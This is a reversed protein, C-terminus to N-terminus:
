SNYTDAIIPINLENLRKFKEIIRKNSGGTYQRHMNDNCIKLHCWSYSLPDGKFFVTTRIGTGDHFSARQIDAVIGEVM